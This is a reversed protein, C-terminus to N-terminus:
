AYDRVRLTRSRKLVGRLADVHEPAFVLQGASNLPPKEIQRLRVAVHIADLGAIFGESQLIWSVEGILLESTM